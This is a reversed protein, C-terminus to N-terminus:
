FKFVMDSKYGLNKLQGILPGQDQISKKEGCVAQIMPPPGCVCILCNSSPPPMIKYLIEETILGSFGPWHLHPNNIIYYVRFKHPFKEQLSDFHDKLLIDKESVNGFLLNFVTDDNVDYLSAELLQLMPTIGTGGAILGFFKKMDKSYPLKNWPGQAELKDGIKLGHIHQSM